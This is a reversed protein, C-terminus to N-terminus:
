EPRPAAIKKARRGPRRLKSGIRKRESTTIHQVSVLRGDEMTGLFRVTRDASGQKGAKDVKIGRKKLDTASMFSKISWVYVGRRSLRGNFNPGRSIKWGAERILRAAEQDWESM